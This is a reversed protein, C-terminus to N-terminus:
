PTTESNTEPARKKFKVVTTHSDIRDQEKKEESFKWAAQRYLEQRKKEAMRMDKIDQLWQEFTKKDTNCVVALKIGGEEVIRRRGTSLEVQERVLQWAKDAKIVRFATWDEALTKSVRELHGAAEGYTPVLWPVGWGYILCTQLGYHGWRPCNCTYGLGFKGEISSIGYDVLSALLTYYSPFKTQDSM